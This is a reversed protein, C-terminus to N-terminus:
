QFGLNKAIRQHIIESVDRDGFTGVRIGITVTESPNRKIHISVLTGDARRARINGSIADRTESELPFELEQLAKKTAQWVQDYEKPYTRQLEGMVYAYAGAASGAAEGVVGCCGVASALSFLFLIVIMFKHVLMAGGGTKM